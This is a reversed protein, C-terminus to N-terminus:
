EDPDGLLEALDGDMDVEAAILFWEADVAGHQGEMEFLLWPQRSDEVAVALGIFADDGDIRRHVLYKGDLIALIIHDFDLGGARGIFSQAITPHLDVIYDVWRSHLARLASMPLDIHRATDSM